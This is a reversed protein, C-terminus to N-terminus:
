PGQMRARLRALGRRIWSKVTGLPINMIVALEEHTYGEYYALMLAKRHEPPMTELCERLRDIEQSEEARAHPNQREDALIMPTLESDDEESQPLAIEPRKMRLLDLARYRAISLLWTLPASKNSEYTDAKQWVRIFCDQLAEEAWDRRQLVRLLVAFLHGSTAAYLSAFAKRDGRATKKLWEGLQEADAM